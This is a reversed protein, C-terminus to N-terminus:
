LSNRAHSSWRKQTWDLVPQFFFLNKKIHAQPIPAALSFNCSDELLLIYPIYLIAPGDPSVMVNLALLTSLQGTGLIHIHTPDYCTDSAIFPQYSTNALLPCGLKPPCDSSPVTPTFFYVECETGKKLHIVSRWQGFHYYVCDWVHWWEWVWSSWWWYLTQLAILAPVVSEPSFWTNM